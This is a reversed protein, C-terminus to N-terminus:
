ALRTKGIQQEGRHCEEETRGDGRNDQDGERGEQGRGQASLVRRRADAELVDEGTRLSDPLFTRSPPM